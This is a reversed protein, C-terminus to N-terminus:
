NLRHAGRPNLRRGIAVAGIGIAFLSAAWILGPAADTGSLALGGVGGAAPVVTVGGVGPGGPGGPGGVVPGTLCTTPRTIVDNDLTVTGNRALLRGQVTVGSVATISTLAMVTGSLVTGTGLSASSTIQWFVNCAQAGNTLAVVGASILSSTSKFVWIADNSGGGDLIITGTLDLGGGGDHYAGPVPSTGGLQTAILTSPMGAAQLYATTLDTQAQLAVADGAHQVGIVTGGPAGAFGVLSAAPYVGLDGTLVSPGTNTVNPTAGLVAYDGATGLLVPVAADARMAGFPGATLLVAGLVVGSLLVGRYGWKSTGVRSRTGQNLKMTGTM